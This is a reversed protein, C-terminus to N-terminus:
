MYEEIDVVQGGELYIRPVRRSIMTIYENKYGGSFGAYDAITIGGGLLTAVAGVCVDPIETIDVMTLDMCVVGLVKARRGHIEVQGCHSMARPYGDGYGVCLTAVRTKRTLPHTNDYGLYEGAEVERVAIVRTKFSMAFTLKEPHAYDDPTHGFVYAGDRVADFQNQPYRWMGISDVFHLMPVSIGRTALGDRVFVLRRAQELDFDPSRRQLHSFLGELRIGPLAAVQAIQEAGDEPTFGIRHLGTDVKAHIRATVGKKAAADSLAKASEADGITFIINDYLASPMEVPLTVGMILIDADDPLVRRLAVAESACAMAFLRAGDGYLIKAIPHTGLGYANAKLVTFHKVGPKLESLAGHYNGLLADVDIEAWTRAMAMELPLM